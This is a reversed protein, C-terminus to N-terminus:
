RHAGRRTEKKRTQRHFKGLGRQRDVLLDIEQPLPAQAQPNISSRMQGSEFHVCRSNPSTSDDVAAMCTSM